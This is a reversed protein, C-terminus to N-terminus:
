PASAGSSTLTTAPQIDLLEDVLLLEDCHLCRGGLGLRRCM